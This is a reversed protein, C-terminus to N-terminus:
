GDLRRQHVLATAIYDKYAESAFADYDLTPYRTRELSPITTPDDFWQAFADAIIRGFKTGKIQRTDKYFDQLAQERKPNARCHLLHIQTEPVTRCCPCM